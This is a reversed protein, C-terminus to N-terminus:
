VCVFVIDFGSSPFDRDGEGREREGRESKRVIEGGIERVREERM